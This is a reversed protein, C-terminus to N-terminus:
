RGIGLLLLRHRVAAAAAAKGAFSGYRKGPGGYLHLQTIKGVPHSPTDPTKGAFSGYRRGPLSHPDQQTIRIGAM